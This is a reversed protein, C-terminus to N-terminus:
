HKNRLANKIATEALPAMIAYGKANPHLGDFTLGDKVSGTSDVMAGFYDLYTLGNRVAYGHLWENMEMIKSPPRSKTQVYFEGNTRRVTDSVPLVSSLVVKIGHAKALEAMASINDATQKLTMPGTNGAIDNTGALIVVVRPKNDIVDATFRLLMQSTTQGSIGRDLYPKGPFFGGFGNEDWLDTISDGLFVVSVEGKKPPVVEANANKYRGLEAWDNLRKQTEVLTKKTAECDKAQQALVPLSFTALILFITIRM